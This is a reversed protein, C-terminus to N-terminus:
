EALRGRAHDILIRRMSQAAVGFFHARNQWKVRSQDVMKLYVENVLATTQLTHDEREGRLYRRAIQQLEQCIRPMLDDLAQRDGANWNLLLETVDHSSEM